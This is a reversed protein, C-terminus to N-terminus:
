KKVAAMEREDIEDLLRMIEAKDREWIKKQEEETYRHYFSPPYGSWERELSFGWLFDIWFMKIEFGIKKLLKIMM